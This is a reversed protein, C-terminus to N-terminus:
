RTATRRGEGPAEAGSELESQVGLSATAAEGPRAVRGLVGVAFIVQSDRLEVVAVRREVVADVLEFPLVVVVQAISVEVVRYGDEPDSGIRIFVPQEVVPLAEPDVGIVVSVEVVGALPVEWVTDVLVAVAIGAVGSLSRVGTM